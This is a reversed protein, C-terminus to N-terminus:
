FYRGNSTRRSVLVSLGRNKDLRPRSALLRSVPDRRDCPLRTGSLGAPLDRIVDGIGGVKGGEIAGNETAVFLVEMSGGPLFIIFTKM